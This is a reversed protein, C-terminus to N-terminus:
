RALAREDGLGAVFGKREVTGNNQAFLNLASVLLVFLLVNKM